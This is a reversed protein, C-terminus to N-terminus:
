RYWAVGKTTPYLQLAPAPFRYYSLERKIRRWLPHEGPLKEPDIDISLLIRRRATSVAGSEADIWDTISHGVSLRLLGPWFRELEAPLLADVDASLWYTQGSYDITARPANGHRARNDYAATPDYSFTPKIARLAPRRAQALALATGATNALVDPPSFGYDAFFGDWIEIQLQFAAAYVAGWTVANRAPVCAARLLDSGMRALHYGGLVHGFKDQDRFAMGWDHNIWFRDAREGAWWANKFYAYLAVNGAVASTAVAARAATRQPTSHCYALGDQAVAAPAAGLIAALALAMARRPAPAPPPSSSIASSRM